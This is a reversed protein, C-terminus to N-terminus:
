RGQRRLNALHQRAAEHGPRQWMAKHSASMKRRTADSLPGRPVSLKARHAASLQRGTLSRSIKARTEDSVHHGRRAVSIRERHEPSFYMNGRRTRSMKSRTEEAHRGGRTSPAVNYLRGAPLASRYYDLWWQERARAQEEPCAELQEFEFANAGHKLWARQLHDNKHTGTILCRRHSNMRAGVRYSSGIYLSHTVHNVIRYVGPGPEPHGSM